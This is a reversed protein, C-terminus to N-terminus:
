KNNLKIPTSITEKAPPRCTTGDCTMYSIVCHLRPEAGTIKFPVTFEINEDWWSLTMGFMPDDVEIAKRAPKIKGTFKIDKSGTLDFTTPKPGNEPLSLGYLHWGQSVLARFSVIGEDAGTAKVTTRWRVPQQATATIGIFASLVLLLTIIRKM